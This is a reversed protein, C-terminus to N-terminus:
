LKKIEELDSDPIQLKYFDIKNKKEEERKAAETAADVIGKLKDYELQQIVKQNAIEQIEQNIINQQEALIKLYEQKCAEEEEKYKEAIKEL